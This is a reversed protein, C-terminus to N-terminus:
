GQEGEISEDSEPSDTTPVSPVSPSPTKRWSQPVVQKDEPLLGTASFHEHEETSLRILFSKKNSNVREKSPVTIEHLWGENILADIACQKSITNGAAKDRAGTKSLPNRIRWATDVADLIDQRMEQARAKAEEAQAQERQEKRSADMPQISTWEHKILSRVRPLSLSVKLM